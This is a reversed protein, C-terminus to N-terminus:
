CAFITVVVASLWFAVRWGWSLFADNSLTGTLVLLVVTALMNGVPVAAQMTTMMAPMFAAEPIMTGKRREMKMATIHPPGKEHSILFLTGDTRATTMMMAQTM